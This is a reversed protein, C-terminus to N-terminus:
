TGIDEANKICGGYLIAETQRILNRKKMEPAYVFAETVIIRNQASDVTSVSVFPGGMADAHMEWIGRCVMIMRGKEKKLEATVSETATQMYMEPGEGPINKKMVSDRAALGRSADLNNGKYAYVCINRMGSAANDSLWLFDHGRKESKMDSPIKMNVGFMENIHKEAKPNGGKGLLSLATNMEARILLDTLMSGNKKIGHELAKVSPTNVYVVMQPKAWVNKEYRIRTSTFRLPDVTVIVINRAMKATQNFRASDTMSVDFMPESQPLGPTDQTLLSDMVSKCTKDTAVVLVEYPRGGSKPLMSEVGDKCSLLMTVTITLLLTKLKRM